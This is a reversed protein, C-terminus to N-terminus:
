FCASVNYLLYIVYITINPVSANASSLGSDSGSNLPEILKESDRVAKDASNCFQM